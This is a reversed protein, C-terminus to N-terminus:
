RPNGSQLDPPELAVTPEAPRDHPVHNRTHPATIGDFAGQSHPAPIEGRPGASWLTCPPVIGGMFQEILEVIRPATAGSWLEPVRGAKWQCGLIRAIQGPLSAVNALKDAGGKVTIPRETNPRLTLCPIRLWTTGEQLGGSDTLVMKAYIVLNMFEDNGLTEVIHLPSGALSFKNALGHAEM